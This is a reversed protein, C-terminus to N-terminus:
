DNGGYYTDKLKQYDEQTDLDEVIESTDVELEKVDNPYRQLLERLGPNGKLGFMEERFQLDFLVPHGRKEEWVPLIIKAGEKQYIEIIRNIVSTQIMPQDGLMVLVADVASPITKIGCLVSSLMGDQYSENVVIKVGSPKLLSEIESRHSGTVVLVQDTDSALAKEVTAEVVTKGNWPMLLKQQKMRTSEGAALILCWVKKKSSQNTEQSDDASNQYTSTM